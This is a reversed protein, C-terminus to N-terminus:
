EAFHDFGRWDGPISAGQADVIRLGSGAPKVGKPVDKGLWRIYAAIAQFERSLSDPARGNLSREFCDSVRKYVDEIGGSRDRYRPYTSQVAGYNNGWALRGASLHCNQCNMGNSLPAVSGRPGLYRATHAILEEGYIVLQREGGQLSRDLHLSPAEWLSDSPTAAAHEPVADDLTWWAWLGYSLIAAFLTVPPWHTKLMKWM